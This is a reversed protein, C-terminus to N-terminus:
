LDATPRLADEAGRLPLLAHVDRDVDARAGDVDDARQPGAHQWCEADARAGGVDVVHGRLRIGRYEDRQAAHLFGTREVVGREVGDGATQAAGGEEPPE